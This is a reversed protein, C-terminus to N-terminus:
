GAPTRFLISLGTGLGVILLGTVIVWIWGWPAPEMEADDSSVLDRERGRLSFYMVVATILGTGWMMLSAPYIMRGTEANVVSYPPLFLLGMMYGVFMTFLVVILSTSIVAWRPMTPDPRRPKAPKVKREAKVTADERQNLQAAATQFEPAEKVRRTQRDLMMFIGALGAGVVLIPVIALGTMVLLAMFPNPSYGEYPSLQPINRLQDGLVYYGLRIELPSPERPPAAVAHGAAGTPATFSQWLITAVASLLLLAIVVGWNKLTENNAL